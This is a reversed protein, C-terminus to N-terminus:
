PGVYVLRIADAVVDQGSSAADTVKVTSAGKFSYTGRL